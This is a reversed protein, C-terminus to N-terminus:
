FGHPQGKGIPKFPAQQEEWRLGMRSFLQIMALHNPVLLCDGEIALPFHLNGVEFATLLAERSHRPRVAILAESAAEMTLYWGEGVFLIQGPEVYTGTPLGIGITRGKETCFRGRMWRRQEWTLSLRDAEKGYLGEPAISGPLAEIVPFTPVRFLRM